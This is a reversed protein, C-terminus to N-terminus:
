RDETGKEYDKLDIADILDNNKDSLTISNVAPTIYSPSDPSNNQVFSISECDYKSKLILSETNKKYQSYLSANIIHVNYKMTM